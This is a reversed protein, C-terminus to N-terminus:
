CSHGLHVTHYEARERCRSCDDRVGVSACVNWSVREVPLCVYPAVNVSGAGVDHFEQRQAAYVPPTTRSSAMVLSM